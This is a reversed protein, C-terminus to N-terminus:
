PRRQGFGNANASCLGESRVRYLTLTLDGSIARTDGTYRGHIEGADRAMERTLSRPRWM